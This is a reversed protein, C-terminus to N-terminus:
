RLCVRTLYSECQEIGVEIEREVGWSICFCTLLKAGGAPADSGRSGKTRSRRM